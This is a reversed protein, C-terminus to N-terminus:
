VSFFAGDLEATVAPWADDCCHSDSHWRSSREGQPHPVPRAPRRARRPRLSRSRRAGGLLLAVAWVAVVVAVGAVAAPAPRRRHGGLGDGAFLRGGNGTTVVADGLRLYEPEAHRARDLGDGEQGDEGVDALHDLVVAPRGIGADAEVVAQDLRGEARGLGRDHDRPAAQGVARAALGDQHGREGADGDGGRGEARTEDSVWTVTARKRAPTNAPETTVMRVMSASMLVGALWAGTKQRNAKKPLRPM